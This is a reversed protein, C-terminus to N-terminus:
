ALGALALDLPTSAMDIASYVVSRLDGARLRRGSYRGVQQLLHGMFIAHTRGM